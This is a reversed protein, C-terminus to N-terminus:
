IWDKNWNRCKRVEVMEREECLVSSGVVDGGM